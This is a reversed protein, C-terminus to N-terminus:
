KQNLGQHTFVRWSGQIRASDPELDLVDLVRVGFMGGVRFM